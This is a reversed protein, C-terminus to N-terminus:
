SIAESLKWLRSFNSLLGSSHCGLFLGLGMTTIKHKKLSRKSKPSEKNKFRSKKAEIAALTTNKVGFHRSSQQSEYKQPGFYNQFRNRHWNLPNASASKKRRGFFNRFLCIFVFSIHSSAAALVAM